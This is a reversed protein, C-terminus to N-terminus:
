FFLIQQKRHRGSIVSWDDIGLRCMWGLVVNLLMKLSVDDNDFFSLVFSVLLEIYCLSQLFFIHLIRHGYDEIYFSESIIM